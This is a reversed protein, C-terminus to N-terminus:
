SAAFADQGRPLWALRRVEEQLEVAFRERVADRMRQALATVDASTAGGLNVIINAHRAFVGAGGVRMGLAGAQELLRGAPVRPGGPEAPLLNQFWSGASPEVTPHKRRRDELRLLREQGAAAADGRRLRLTVDLLLDTGGKLSSRRYAFGLGSPDAARIVGDAGLLRVEEVFNGIERGFCGANGVVAGGVTGPIGSAFELGVLGDELTLRILEDFALGAGARVTEGRSEYGGIEVRLLLGCFGRDDALVNSGGGLVAHPVGLRRAAERFRQAESPTRIRVAAAAPGGVRITTLEALSQEPLLGPAALERLRARIEEAAARSEM